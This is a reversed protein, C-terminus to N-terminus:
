NSKSSVHIISICLSSRPHGRYRRFWGSSRSISGPDWNSAHVGKFSEMSMKIPTGVHRARKAHPFDSDARTNSISKSMERTLIFSLM